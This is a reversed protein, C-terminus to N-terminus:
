KGKLCQSLVCLRQIVNINLSKYHMSFYLCILTAGKIGFKLFFQARAQLIICYVFFCDVVDHHTFTIKSTKKLSSDIIKSKYPRPSLGGQDENKSRPPQLKSTRRHTHASKRNVYLFCANKRADFSKVETNKSLYHEVIITLVSM